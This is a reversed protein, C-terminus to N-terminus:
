YETTCLFGRGSEVIWGACTMTRVGLDDDHVTIVTWPELRVWNTDVPEESEGFFEHWVATADAEDRAIVWEVVDNAFVHLGGM